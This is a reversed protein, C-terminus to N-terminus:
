PGKCTAPPNFIITVIAHTTQGWFTLPYFPTFALPPKIYQIIVSILLQVIKNYQFGTVAYYLTTVGKEDRTSVDRQFTFDFYYRSYFGIDTRNATYSSLNQALPYLELVFNVMIKSIM